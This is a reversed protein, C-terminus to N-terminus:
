LISYSYQSYNNWCLVQLFSSLEVIIIVISITKNESFRQWNLFNKTSKLEFAMVRCNFFQFFDVIKCHELPMDQYKFLVISIMIRRKRNTSLVYRFNITWTFSQNVSQSEEKKYQYMSCYELIPDWEILCCIMIDRTSVNAFVSKEVNDDLHLFWILIM